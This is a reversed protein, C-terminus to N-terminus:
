LFKVEPELEVGSHKFVTEQVHEILAKVDAFSANAHNVIFGAHKESVKAGGIAYGKLGAQEILAAAYGEKPRKFTSGASPLNLPQSNSRRTSFNSMKESISEKDGKHLRLISSLIIENTNSFRSHRYAFEHEEAEIASLGTQSDCFTTKCVVDKMEGDYAGANMVVAGGLTGPIGHAFELGTLEQEFAFVALKSLLVGSEAQIFVADQSDTISNSKYSGNTEINNLRTTNIVILDMSSDGVLLNSGNGM